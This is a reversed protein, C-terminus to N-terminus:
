DASEYKEDVAEMKEAKEDIIRDVSGSFEEFLKRRNKVTLDMEKNREDMDPFVVIVEASKVPVRNELTIHGNSYIGKVALM